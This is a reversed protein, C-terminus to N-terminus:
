PLKIRTRRRARSLRETLLCMTDMAVAATEESKEGLSIVRGYLTIDSIASTTMSLVTQDNFRNRLMSGHQKRKFLQLKDTLSDICQSVVEEILDVAEMSLADCRIRFSYFDQLFTAKCHINYTWAHKGRIIERLRTELMATFIDIEAISVIGPLQAVSDYEAVKRQQECESYRLLEFRETPFPTDVLPNPTAARTGRKRVSFPSDKLFAVVQELSLVGVAVVSMNAPVYHTDYYTQLDEQTIARISEPTGLVNPSRTLFTNPFVSVHERRVLHYLYDTPFKRNFENVIIHRTREVYKELNAQVLMHGFYRLSRALPEAAASSHFGYSSFYTRTSGLRPAHGSNQDFFEKLDKYTLPANKSVLHEVFHATGEKGPLDQRSGSHIAFGFRVGTRESVQSVFVTLGNELTTSRFGAYQDVM